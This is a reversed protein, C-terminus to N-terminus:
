THRVHRVSNSLGCDGSQQLLLKLRDEVRVAVAVTRPAGGMVGQGHGSLTAPLLVPHQVEVEPGEEVANGMIQQEARDSVM